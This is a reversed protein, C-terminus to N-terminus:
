FAGSTLRTVGETPINCVIGTRLDAPGDYALIPLGASGAMSEALSYHYTRFCVALRGGRVDALFAMM